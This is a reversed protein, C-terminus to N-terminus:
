CLKQYRALIKDLYEKQDMAWYHESFIEVEYFGHFGANTMWRSIKRLDICGDGMLGRDNLFDSQPSKWDCIHYAFLNGKEGCRNIEQQLNPEWWLHYVDLVVGVFDNQLSEVVDNAQKLTNIASRSHAYMPHLPEVGLKIPLSQALPLLSEIGERIQMRSKELSQDPHAGCVLVLLPAGLVAAQEMLKRNEAIRKLREHKDPHAFFGGRVMSVVEIPFQSLLNAARSVGIKEIVNNWISIGRVGRQCYNELAEEFSWPRTTITHICLRSYDEAM